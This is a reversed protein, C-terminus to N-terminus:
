RDTCCPLRCIASLLTFPVGFARALIPRIRPSRAAMGSRMTTGPRTRGSIGDSAGTAGFAVVASPVDRTGVSPGPIPRKAGHDGLWPAVPLARGAAVGFAEAFAVADVFGDRPAEGVAEGDVEAEADAESGAVGCGLALARGAIGVVAVGTGVFRGFGFAV